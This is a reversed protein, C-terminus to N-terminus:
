RIGVVVSGTTLGSIRNGKRPGNSASTRSGGSLTRTSVPYSRVMLGPAGVGAFYRYKGLGIAVATLTRAAM